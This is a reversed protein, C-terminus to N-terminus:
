PASMKSTQSTSSRISRRVRVEAASAAAPIGELVAAVQTLAVSNCVETGILAQWPFAQSADVDDVLATRGETLNLDTKQELSVAEESTLM